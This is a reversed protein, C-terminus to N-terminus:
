SGQLVTQIRRDIVMAICSVIFTVILFLIVSKNALDLLPYHFLFIYFSLEGLLQGTGKFDKWDPYWGMRVLFIGLGFYFISCLPFWKATTFNSDFGITPIGTNIIYTSVLSVTFLCLLSIGPRKHIMGHLLPYVLYLSMLLGIYWVVPNLQGFNRGAFSVFGTFSWFLTVPNIRTGALVAIVAAFVLSIWMAPYLRLIRRGIFHLYERVNGAPIYTLELVAGSVIIFLIVGINGISVLFINNWWYPANFAAWGLEGAIHRIIICTIAIARLLDFILFRDRATHIVVNRRKDPM